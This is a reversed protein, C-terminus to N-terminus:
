SGPQDGARLEAELETLASSPSVGLEAAMARAASLLRLAPGRRGAEHLLRASRVYRVEDTPDAEIGSSLLEIVTDSDGRAAADAALADLLGLRQLRLRERPAAAWPHFPDDCLLDGGYRALASRALAAGQPEGASLAARAQRAEAQFLAVDCVVGPAFAVTEGRRTVLPGAAEAVRALVNRLRRRGVSPEIEPWISEILADVHMAGGYVALLAVAQAARPQFTAIAGHTEVRLPGLVEVRAWPAASGNGEPRILEAAVLDLAESPALARGRRFQGLADAGLASWAPALFVDAREQWSRPLSVGLSDSLAAAAGAVQLAPGPRVPALTGALAVMAYALSRGDGLADFTVAAEMLLDAAKGLQGELACVLGLHLTSIAAGHDDGEARQVALAEEALSRAEGLDGADAAVLALNARALAADVRQGLARHGELSRAFLDRAGAPDGAFALVLGLHNHLRAAGADDGAGVLLDLSESMAARAAEFDGQRWALMGLGDLLHARLHAPPDGALCAEVWRRGETLHGRLEWFRWLEVGLTAAAETDGDDLSRRLALRINDEEPLLTELRRRLRPGAILDEGAGSAMSLCWERHWRVYARVRGETALRARVADGVVELVRLRAQGARDERVVLARETLGNAGEVAARRAAADSLSALLAHFGAGGACVALRALLDAEACSLQDMSWDLAARMSKHCGSGDPAAVSSRREAVDLLGLSEDLAAALDSLGLVGVHAAALEVALPFGDVRRCIAAVARAGDDDLLLGPRVARAREVFLRPADSEFLEKAGVTGPGPVSLPLVSFRREGPVGLAATSTALVRLNPCGDLLVEVLRSAHPSVKECGDLVLTCALDQLEAVVQDEGGEATTIGLGASLADALHAADGLKGLEVVFTRVGLARELDRGVELALRTKGVGGPGLLSVLRFRGLAEAVATREAERGVFSSAPSTSPPDSAAVLTFSRAIPSDAM